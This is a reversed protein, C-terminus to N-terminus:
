DDQPAVPNFLRHGMGPQFTNSARAQLHLLASEVANDLEHGQALFSLCATALLSDIDQQRLGGDLPMSYDLRGHHGQFRTHWQGAAGPVGTVLVANAGNNLLTEVADPTDGLLEDAQWRELSPHDILLLSSLPLLLRLSADLADDADLEDLGTPMASLHLVLPLEPYDSCLEAVMSAIEPSYVPGCKIAQINMDELLCRAQDDAIDEALTQINEQQASDRVLLATPVSVIHCGLHAGTISDAPLHAGGSPDYPALVLALAPSSNKIEAAMKDQICM